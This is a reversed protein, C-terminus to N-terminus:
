VRPFPTSSASSPTTRGSAAIRIGDVLAGAAKAEEDAEFMDPILRPAPLRGTTVLLELSGPKVQRVQLDLRSAAEPLRGRGTLADDSGYAAIRRYAALLQALPDSFSALSLGVSDKEFGPVDGDLKIQLEAM